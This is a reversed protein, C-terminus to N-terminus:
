NNVEVHLPLAGCGGLSGLSGGLTGLLDDDDVFSDPLGDLFSQTGAQKDMPVQQVGVLYLCDAMTLQAGNSDINMPVARDSVDMRRPLARQAGAQELQRRSCRSGSCAVDFVIEPTASYCRSGDQYLHGGVSCDRTASTDIHVKMQVQLRLSGTGIVDLCLTGIDM